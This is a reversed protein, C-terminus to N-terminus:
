QNELNLYSRRIYMSDVTKYYYKVHGVIKEEPLKSFLLPLTLSEIKEFELDNRIYNDDLELIVSVYKLQKDEIRDYVKVSPTLYQGMSDSFLLGTEKSLKENYSSKIYKINADNYEPKLFQFFFIFIGFSIIVPVLVKVRNIESKELEPSHKVLKTGAVIDGLRRSPNILAVIVELPWIIIFINRIFCRMPSAIQGNLNDVVRM